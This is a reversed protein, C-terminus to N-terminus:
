RSCRQFLYIGLVVGLQAGLFGAVPASCESMLALVLVVSNIVIAFSAIPTQMCPCYTM